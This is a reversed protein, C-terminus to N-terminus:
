GLYWYFVDGKKSDIAIVGDDKCRYYEYNRDPNQTDEARRSLTKPWWVGPYRPFVINHFAVRKCSKELDEIDSLYNFSFFLWVENTDINHREHINKSSPPLFEPIWKGAGVTSAKIAAEYNPYTADMTEM